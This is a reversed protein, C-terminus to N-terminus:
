YFELYFTEYEELKKTEFLIKLNDKSIFIVKANQMEGLYKKTKKFKNMYTTGDAEKTFTKVVIVSQDNGFIKSDTTLKNRGFFEKNFDNVNSKALGINKSEKEGPFVVIWYEDDEKYTYLNSKSFDAPINASYGNKIIGMMEKAKTEEPTGPYEAVVMELVPILGQKDESLQGMALAKLLMYKSRYVNEKEGDIVEDARIIVPYYLGRNYRDLITIYDQENLKEREKRKVFFDPDRLYNAYDSNPYNALIYNKHVESKSADTKEYILYLQYASMLNFDSKVNRALVKEFQDAAMKNENLQDKYIIGADYLATLLRVNSAAIASDGFPLNALLSEVSLTDKEEVKTNAKPISDNKDEPSFQVLVIKDTRRWNDENERPGWQKRFEEYGSARTKTNNWYSKNGSIQDQNALAQNQLEKLKEAERRKNLAEEEKMKKILNEAFKEQEKPSLQAIRQVSDEYLATEVATVLDQLKLAKNRIGEANPYNEPIVKSCSDYYKQAKVYNKDVFSIDGLREYTKGKQRPNNTSYFASKHLLQIGNDKKGEQLSIDALAYYIQDKFEANKEDRLMKNLQKKIKDDGGMFARNIRANFNMEFPVNYKLVKTYHYKAKERSGSRSNIQALVFHIRGKDASKKAVKLAEELSKIAEEDEKKILSLKAKTKEYELRISEPFEAKEDEKDQEKQKKKAKKARKKATKTMKKGEESKEKEWFKWNFSKKNAETEELALQLIDLNIQAGSYDKIEIQSKAIWLTAEYNAPDKAFFKRIFEFNKIAGDYDRRYYSARGIALWNEDIWRNNEEKKKSLNEVSPMSHNSIVKTCKSIATDIAPYMGMVEEENPLPTIPLIDYYDEKLNNQYSKMAQNLLENANFLGNYKATTSHYTRNILTNKETSCAVMLLLIVGTFINILRFTM